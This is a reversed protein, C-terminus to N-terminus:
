RVGLVKIRSALTTPKMGLLMAAGDAGFIKGGTQTLAAHISRKEIDRLEARTIVATGGAVVSTARLEQIRVAALDALFRLERLADDSPVARDFIAWVGLVSDARLPYGVFSRVGQRAVWSSNVLWDEDGRIGRVVHEEGTAAVVGIKGEGVPIRSFEGDLRAYSGGGSPTGASGRLCLTGASEVLWVRSLAVSRDRAIGAALAHVLTEVTAAKVVHVAIDRTSDIVQSM